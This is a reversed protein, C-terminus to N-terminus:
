KYTHPPQVCLINLTELDSIQWIGTDLFADMLTIDRERMLPVEFKTDFKIPSDFKHCLEWTHKFWCPEALKGLHKFDREFIHGGLGVSIRFMEYAHRLTQGTATPLDWHSTIFHMREGLNDINLDFLGLGGYKKSITRMERRMKRNIGMRSITQHYFSHLAKDVKKPDHSLCVISWKLKPHLQSSLSRRVDTRQLFRSTNMNDAWENGIKKIRNLQHQGTNRLDNSFGLSTIDDSASITPIIATKGEKQPIHFKIDPLESPKKIIAKFSKFKYAAIAVQCKKQKLVGGTALVLKGWFTISRQIHAMFEETSQCQLAKLLLDSDDVYQLAALLLIRRSWASHM